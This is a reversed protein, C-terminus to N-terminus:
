RRGPSCSTRWSPESPKRRHISDEQEEYPLVSSYNNAGYYQGDTSAYGGTLIDLLSGSSSAYAGGYSGYGYPDYSDGYGYSGGSGYSSGYGGSQSGYSSGYGGQNGYSSDYGGQGGYSSGYGAQSLIGLLDSESMSGYSDYTSYSDTDLDGASGFLAELLGPGPFQRPERKRQRRLGPPYRDPQRLLQGLESRLKGRDARVAGPRTLACAM